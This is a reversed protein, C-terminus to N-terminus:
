FSRLKNINKIISSHFESWSPDGYSKLKPAGEELARRIEFDNVNGHIHKTRLIDTHNFIMHLARAEKLNAFAINISFRTFDPEPAVEEIFKVKM